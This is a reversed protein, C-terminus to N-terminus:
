LEVLEYFIDGGLRHTMGPIVTTISIPITLIVEKQTLNM